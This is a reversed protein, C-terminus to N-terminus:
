EILTWSAPAGPTLQLALSPNSGAGARLKGLSVRRLLPVLGYEPPCRGILTRSVRAFSVMDLLSLLLTRWPWTPM